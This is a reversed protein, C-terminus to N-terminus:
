RMAAMRTVHGRILGQHEPSLILHREQKESLVILWLRKAVEDCLDFNIKSSAEAAPVGLARESEGLVAGRVRDTTCLEDWSNTAFASWTIWMFHDCRSPQSQLALYNKALYENYMQNQDRAKTYNKCEALFEEGDYDGGLLLGGIDYSFTGGSTWKFTLKRVAVRDPNVWAVDARTTAELWRKARQAGDQGKFHQQEGTTM